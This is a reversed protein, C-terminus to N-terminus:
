KHTSNKTGRLQAYIVLMIVVRIKDVFRKLDEIMEM